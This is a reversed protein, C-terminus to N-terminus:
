SSSKGEKAANYRKLLEQKLRNPMDPNESILKECLSIAKIWLKENEYLGLLHFEIHSRWESEPYTKIFFELSGIANKVDPEDFDDLYLQSLRWLAEQAFETGSCEDAIRRYLTAKETPDEVHRIEFFIQKALEEKGSGNLNAATLINGIDAKKEATEVTSLSILTFNVIAVGLFLLCLERKM